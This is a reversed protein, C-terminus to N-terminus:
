IVNRGPIHVSLLNVNHGLPKPLQVNKTVIETPYQLPLIYVHPLYWNEAISLINYCDKPYVPLWM